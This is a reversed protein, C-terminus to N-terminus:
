APRPAKGRKWPQSPSVPDTLPGARRAASRWDARRVVDGRAELCDADAPAFAELADPAVADRVLRAAVFPAVVVADAVVPEAVVAAPALVAAPPAAAFAFATTARRGLRVARAHASM